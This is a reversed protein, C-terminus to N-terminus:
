PADGYEKQAALSARNQKNELNTMLTQLAYIEGVKGVLLDHTLTGNRYHTVMQAVTLEIQENVSHYIAGAVVTAQAGEAILEHRRQQTSNATM